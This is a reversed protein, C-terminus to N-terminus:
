SIFHQLRFFDLFEVGIEFPHDIRLDDDLRTRALVIGRLDIEAFFKQADNIEIILITVARVIERHRDQVDIESQRAARGIELRGDAPPGGQSPALVEDPLKGNEGTEARVVFIFSEAAPDDLANSWKLSQASASLRLHLDLSHTNEVLDLV